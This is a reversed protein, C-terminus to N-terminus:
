RGGGEGGEELVDFTVERDVMQELTKVECMVDNNDNCIRSITCRDRAPRIRLSHYTRNCRIGNNTQTLNFGCKQFSNVLTM